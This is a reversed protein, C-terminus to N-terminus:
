KNYSFLFSPIWLEKCVAIVDEDDDVVGLINYEKQLEILKAKKFIHGPQCPSTDNLILKDYLLYQDDLWKASEDLHDKEKRWSLIIINCGMFKPIKRRYANLWILLFYTSTIIEDDAGSDYPWRNVPHCLTFDLDFIFAKPKNM